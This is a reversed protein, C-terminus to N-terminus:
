GLVQPLEYADADPVSVRVWAGSGRRIQYMANRLLAVELLGDSNSAVAIEESIYSHGVDVPAVLLKYAMAVNPEVAGEADYTTLYCTCFAPDAAPTVIAATIEATYDTDASVVLIYPTFTFGPRTVTLTWTAADLSFAAEGSVDTTQSYTEGTKSLRVIAGEIPDTGDTVTITVAYAGAGAGGTAWSGAGHTSTLQADIEEVTPATGGGVSSVAVDLRTLNDLYGARLATLRSELEDVYAAITSLQTDMDAGAMGIATRVNAQSLNNLAAIAALVADDAGALATALEANTPLDGLQSDLNASALGVATRVGAADLATGTGRSSIAADVYDALRKGISGVATLGSTLAGWIDAVLTGFSSLTRTGAGWVATAVDAVLTGYSAVSGVSGIVNGGVNGTVSGVAGTVSGVAGTVSAVAGGAYTSRSSVAADLNALRTDGLATLGAGAAGLRAYADGTMAPATANLWQEADVQLYDSGAILSDYVLAPLVTIDVPPAVYTTKSLQVRSHGVQSIDSTTLVLEYMGVEKHTLTASGNLAAPTGNGKCIKVDGVVAGTYEAGTSDLVPGFSITLATSLKAPLYM